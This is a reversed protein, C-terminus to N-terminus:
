PVQTVVTPEAFRVTGTPAAASAGITTSATTSTTTPTAPGPVTWRDAYTISGGSAVHGAYWGPVGPQEWGAPLVVGGGHLGDM